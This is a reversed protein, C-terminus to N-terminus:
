DAEEPTNGAALWDKYEQYDTNGDAFPIITNDEKRLVYNTSVVAGASGRHETYKKYTYAM